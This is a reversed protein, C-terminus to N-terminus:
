FILLFEYPWSTDWSRPHSIEFEYRLHAARHNTIFARLDIGRNVNEIDVGLSRLRLHTGLYHGHHFNIIVETEWQGSLSWAAFQRIGGLVISCQLSFKPWLSLYCNYEGFSIWCCLCPTHSVRVEQMSTDVIFLVFYIYWGGAVLICTSFSRLDPPCGYPGDLYAPVTCVGNRTAHDRLRQTFGGRGRILFVVDKDKAGDVSEPISAITFPHAETPLNSITPLIIYAHQGPIWSFRRRLTLRVTDDSLLEM